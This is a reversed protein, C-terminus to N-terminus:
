KLRSAAATRHAREVQVCCMPEAHALYHVRCMRLNHAASIPKPHGAALACIPSLAEAGPPSMSRTDVARHGPSCSRLWGHTSEQGERPKRQRPLLLLLLVRGRARTATDRQGM